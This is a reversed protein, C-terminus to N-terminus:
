VPNLVAQTGKLWRWMTTRHAVGTARWAVNSRLTTWREGTTVKLSAETPALSRGGVTEELELLLTFSITSPTKADACDRAACARGRRYVDEHTGRRDVDEHTGLRSVLGEDTGSRRGDCPPPTRASAIPTGPSQTLTASSGSKGTREGKEGGTYCIYITGPITSSGRQNIDHVHTTRTRNDGTFTRRARTRIDSAITRRAWGERGVGLILVGSCTNGDSSRSRTVQRTDGSRQRVNNKSGRCSINENTWWWIRGVTSRTGDASLWKGKTKPVM